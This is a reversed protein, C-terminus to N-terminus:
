GALWMCIDTSIPQQWDIGRGRRNEGTRMAVSNASLQVVMASRGTALRRLMRVACGNGAEVSLGLLSWPCHFWVM